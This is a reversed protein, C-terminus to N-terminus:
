LMLRLRIHLILYIIM